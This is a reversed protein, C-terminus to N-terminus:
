GALKRAILPEIQGWYQTRLTHWELKFWPTFQEPKNKIRDDLEEIGIYCLESVEETCAKAEQDSIGVLVSCFEHEAGVDLYKAYYQFEYIPYLSTRLGLEEITRRQAADTINEGKVPHSCCSNSWYGPWLM